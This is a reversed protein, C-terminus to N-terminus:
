ASKWALEFLGRMSKAIKKNDIIVGVLVDGKNYNAFSVKDGYVQIELESPFLSHDVAKTERLELKNKELYEDSKIDKKDKSVIVKAPIGAKVRKQVYHDRLWRWIAPDAKYSTLFSSIPKGINITDNYLEKIGERGEYVRVVPKETTMKYKESLNPLISSILNEAESYRIKQDIVYRKLQNPDRPKFEIKGKKITQEILGQDRLSYVLHYLNTRKIEPILRNLEMVGMQGNELLLEYIKAENSTFGAKTFLELYKFAPRNQLQINNM